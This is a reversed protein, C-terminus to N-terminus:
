LKKWFLLVSAIQIEEQLEMNRNKLLQSM